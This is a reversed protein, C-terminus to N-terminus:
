DTDKSKPRHIFRIKGEENESVILENTDDDFKVIAGEPITHYVLKRNEGVKVPVFWTISKM